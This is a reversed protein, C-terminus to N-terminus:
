ELGLYLSTIRVSGDLQSHIGAAARPTDVFHSPEKVSRIVKGQALDVVEVSDNGLAALFLRHGASDISMHDIRGRVDGLPIPEAARSTIAFLLILLAVIKM